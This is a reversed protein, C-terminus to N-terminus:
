RDRRLAKLETEVAAKLLPLDDEVISSVVQLQLQEYAHAAFNRFGRM